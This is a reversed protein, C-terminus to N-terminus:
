ADYRALLEKRTGALVARAEETNGFARALQVAGSLASVVAWASGPASGTPMVREVLDHMRLLTRNSAKLVSATQRPMEACLAPMPCGRDCNQVHRDSLYLEVLARFASIGESQLRPLEAEIVAVIERNAAEVAEALLAERSDFHAYFGGHTLGAAKMVDAVGVGSFGDRRMIRSAAQVIREHSLAKRGGASTKMPSWQVRFIIMTMNKTLTM